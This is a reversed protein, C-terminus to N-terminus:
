HKAHNLTLFPRVRMFLYARETIPYAVKLTFYGFKPIEPIDGFDVYIKCTATTTEKMINTLQINHRVDRSLRIQFGNKKKLHSNVIM